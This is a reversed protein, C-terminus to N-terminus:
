NDKLVLTRPKPVRARFVEVVCDTASVEEPDDGSVTLEADIEPAPKVM